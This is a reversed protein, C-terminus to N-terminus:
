RDWVTAECNTVAKSSSPLAPHCWVPCVERYGPISGRPRYAKTPISRQLQHCCIVIPYNRVPSPQLLERNHLNKPVRERGRVFSDNSLSVCFLLTSWEFSVMILQYCDRQSITSPCHFLIRSATEWSGKFGCQIWSCIKNETGALDVLRLVLDHIRSSTDRISSCWPSATLTSASHSTSRSHMVSFFHFSSRLSRGRLAKPASEPGATMCPTGHHM